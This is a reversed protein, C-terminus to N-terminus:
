YIPLTLENYKEVTTELEDFSFKAKIGYNKVSWSQIISDIELNNNFIAEYLGRQRDESSKKLNSM